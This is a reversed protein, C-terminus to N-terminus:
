IGTRSGSMRPRGAAYYQLEGNYWGERNRATRLAMPRTSARHRRVRGVLWRRGPPVRWRRTSGTITPSPSPRPLARRASCPCSCCPRAAGMLHPDAQGTVAMAAEKIAESHTPHAHCTYAIDEATAGFEMALAAEAIMTGAVSAIIWVGLVRDTEADAIVKVFGDTERNTKARSNAM